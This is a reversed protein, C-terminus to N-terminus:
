HANTTHTCPAYATNLACHKHTPAYTRHAHVINTHLARTDQAHATHMHLTRRTRSTRPTATQCCPSSPLPVGCAYDCASASMYIVFIHVSNSMCLSFYVQVVVCTYSTTSEAAKECPFATHTRARVISVCACSTTGEGARQALRYCTSTNTDNTCACVHTTPKRLSSIFTDHTGAHSTCTDYYAYIRLVILANDADPADRVADLNHLPHRQPITTKITTIM